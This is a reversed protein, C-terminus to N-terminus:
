RLRPTMQYRSVGAISAIDDLTIESAFRSEIFWLAKGVPSTSGERRSV